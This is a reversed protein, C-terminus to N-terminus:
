QAKEVQTAMLVEDSYSDYKTIDGTYTVTVKDGVEADCTVGEELNFIYPDEGEEAAVVIMFDKKEELTGTYTSTKPDAASHNGDKNSGCATFAFITTLALLMAILKKM